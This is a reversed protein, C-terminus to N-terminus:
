TSCGQECKEYISEPAIDLGNPWATMGGNIKAKRFYNM